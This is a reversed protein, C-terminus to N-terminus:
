FQSYQASLSVLVLHMLLYEFLELKLEKLKTTIHSVEMIYERINGKGKYKMSILHQLLMSIKAKDSRTFHKELKTLFQKANTISKSIAGRLAELIGHKIIMLSMRNSHEWKEFHRRSNSSSKVIFSLPQKTRLTLDLDM